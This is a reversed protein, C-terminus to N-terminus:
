AFEIGSVACAPLPAYQVPYAFQAYTSMQPLQFLDFISFEVKKTVLFPSLLVQNRPVKRKGKRLTIDTSQPCIVVKKEGQKAPWMDQALYLGEPTYRVM